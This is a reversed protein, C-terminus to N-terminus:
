EQFRIEKEWISNNGCGDKAIIKLLHKGILDKPKRYYAFSGKSEFELLVWNGDIYLDYDKLSSKNEIIKWQLIQKKLISDTKLFNLTTIVPGITDTKITFEGLSKSEACLWGNSFVTPIYKSNISIYYKEIPLKYEILPLKIAIAKQIPAYPDGISFGKIFKMKKPIPEYVCNKPISFSVENNKIIFNSDPLLYDNTQIHYPEGIIGPLSILKFSLESRNNKTDFAIYSINLTDNQKLNVIGLEDNHYIPLSNINTKFSKQFKRKNVVFEEYDSHTNIQRSSEFSVSDIKQGFITDKDVILYSGYLGLPNESQNYHDIVEFAFGIGGENSCFDSPAYLVDGGIFYGYKGKQVPIIKSKGKIRYGKETLRYIKVNKIEPAKTDIINFGFKLPNLATETKTDRLEFHLHPATSSGSNGSLAFNEGRKITIDNEDLFIEIEFNQEKIQTLKVISDLKGLLSSCHAYLSTIGNPHNIYVAKGYGYPSIKIRSVYGDAIALLKIGETGNTKFDLGMHFHNPRLEGFNASLILPINLPPSYKSISDTQANLKLAFFFVIFLSFIKCIM